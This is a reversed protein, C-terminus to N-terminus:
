QPPWSTEERLEDLMSQTDISFDDGYQARIEAQFAEVQEFWRDIDQPSKVERAAENEVFALVRQKGADDLNRLKELITREIEMASM